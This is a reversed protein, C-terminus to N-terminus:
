KTKFEMSLSNVCYRIGTNTPGDNFVHGLHGGCNACLIETRVMGLSSDKIEKVNSSVSADFAPWGCSSEFKSDSTFLEQNCSACVYMGEEFHSNYIGTFPRETGKNVLIDHAAKSLKNRHSKDMIDTTPKALTNILELPGPCMAQHCSKCSNIVNDLHNISPVSDFIKAQLLFSKTMSEFSPKYFTSDTFHFNTFDEFNLIVPTDTDLNNRSIKIKSVMSQMAIAMESKELQPKYMTINQQCSVAFAIVIFLTLLARM